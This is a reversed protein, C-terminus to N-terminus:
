SITVIWYLVRPRCSIYTPGAPGVDPGEGLSLVHDQIVHGLDRTGCIGRTECAKASHSDHSDHSLYVIYIEGFAGKLM